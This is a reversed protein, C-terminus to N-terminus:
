HICSSYVKSFVSLLGIWGIYDFSGKICNIIGNLSKQIRQIYLEYKSLVHDSVDMSDM